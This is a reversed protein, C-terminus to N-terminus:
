ITVLAVITADQRPLRSEVLYFFLGTHRVIIHQSIFLFSNITCATTQVAEERPTAVIRTSMARLIMENSLLLDKQIAQTSHDIKQVMRELNVESRILFIWVADQLKANFNAIEALIASSSTTRRLVSTHSLNRMYEEIELLCGVLNLIRDHVLGPQPMRTVETCVSSVIWAAREALAICASKCTRMSEVLDLIKRLSGIGGELLNGLVPVMKAASEAIDLLKLIDARRFSSPSSQSSMAGPSSM